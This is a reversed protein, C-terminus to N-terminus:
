ERSYGLNMYEQLFAPKKLKNNSKLGFLKFHRCKQLNEAKECSKVSFVQVKADKPTLLRAIWARQTNADQMWQRCTLSEWVNAM